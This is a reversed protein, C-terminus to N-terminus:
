QEWAQIKLILSSTMAVASNNLGSAQGISMSGFSQVLSLCPPYMRLHSLSPFLMTRLDADRGTYLPFCWDGKQVM